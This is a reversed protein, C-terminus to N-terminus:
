SKALLSPNWHRKDKVHQIHCSTCNPQNSAILQRQSGPEVKGNHCNACTTRPTERDIQDFSKHCSSCSLEGRANGTMDGVKKVRQVHLAHFQKSRWQEESETPLRAVDIKKLAWDDDDLGWKWHGAVVPYGFTGGHPTKVRRGNFARQNADNHCETCTALATPGPRFDAGRHEGHCDSCGIGAAIHPKIVTAVFTDTNHCSACRAEMNGSFSHCNTCSDANAQTAIVPFVALQNRSHSSSLPAPAYANAYWFVGAISFVGVIVAGWILLSVPWGRALDSTPKWNFQAKGSRRQSKPFLPSPRVMKGAERIRKDWFFDLTKNGPLPAARPAKAPKKGAEPLVLKQTTGILPSTSDAVEIGIQLAVKLILAEESRDVELLFPGIAILDGPALAENQEVPKGNLQPPNAPRLSFLYYNDDIEKIGAQARSVAPHNLLLECEVLRGILLGDSILTVPDQVLDERIIIFRNESM